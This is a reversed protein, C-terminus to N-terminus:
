HEHDEPYLILEFEYWEDRFEALADRFWIVEDYSNLPELHETISLPELVEELADSLPPEEEYSYLSGELTTASELIEIAEESLDVDSFRADPFTEKAYERYGEYSDAVREVTFTQEPHEIPGRETVARFYEDDTELYDFPPDPVLDSEGPDLEDHFIVAHSFRPREYSVDRDDKEPILERAAEVIRQDDGALSNDGLTIITSDDAPNTDNWDFRFVWREREVEERSEVWVRYYAGDHELCTRRDRKGTGWDTRFSLEWARTDVAGTEVLQDVKDQKYADSLEISYKSEIELPDVLYPRYGSGRIPDDVHRTKLRYKNESGPGISVCGTTVVAFSTFVASLYQRRSSGM